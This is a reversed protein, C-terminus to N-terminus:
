SEVYPLNGFNKELEKINPSYEATLKPNLLNFENNATDFAAMLKKNLNYIQEQVELVQPHTERYYDQKSQREEVSEIYARRIELNRNYEEYQALLLPFDKLFFYFGIDVDYKGDCDGPCGSSTHLGNFGTGYGRACVFNCASPMSRNGLIHKPVIVKGKVQGSWGWFSTPYTKDQGSWNTREGIPAAHSNSVNGFRVNIKLDASIGWFEKAKEQIMGALDAVNSLNLRIYDKQKNKEEASIKNLEMKKDLEAKEKLLRAANAEAGKKTKFTKGSIPCEFLTVAKIEM